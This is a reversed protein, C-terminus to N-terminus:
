QDIFNEFLCDIYTILKGQDLFLTFSAACQPVPIEKKRKIIINYSCTASHVILDSDNHLLMKSEIYGLYIEWYKDQM